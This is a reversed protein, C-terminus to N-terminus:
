LVEWRYTESFKTPSQGPQNLTYRALVAGRDKGWQNVAHLVRVVARKDSGWWMWEGIVLPHPPLLDQQLIGGCAAVIQGNLESVMIIQRPDHLAEMLYGACGVETWNIALQAFCTKAKEIWWLRALMPIDKYTAVRIM